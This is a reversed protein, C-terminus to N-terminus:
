FPHEFSLYFFVAKEGSSPGVGIPFAVGPVIQLGNEFDWAWRVGPSILFSDSDETRGPGTVEEGATYLFEVLANFRPAALWVFSQGFHYATVDAENHSLNRAHPTHTAGLNTHTVFRESLVVSLPLNVQVGTAGAGLGHAEDGTPLLLTLRPAFAVPGGDVGLLQYRYNVAIDGIGTEDGFRQWPASFSLQHRQNPAPWEQTFSYVQDGSGHARSFTNIHQVVRPGQNYAEEILFSNDEIPGDQALAPLSSGAFFVSAVLLRVYFSRSIDSKLKSM